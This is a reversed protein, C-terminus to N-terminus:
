KNWVRPAPTKPLPRRSDLEKMVEEIARDLQEDEGNWEKVPDNDILIDPDVGHNEIIWEGTKVDYSTFFPVRLDTGDIFPLSGSIGVIGGWTRTGILKGLGLARFGWPFLDGDSASYKNILCVKPGVQVADPITGIHASGRSMTLRYPERALRELIMPSVNGGGNARDDIILGERDTQPYFYRSFEVLGEVGMDPIYIYGIRGGSARDVKELNKQVWRHHYLPYEDALPLIVQRRAGDPRPESNLSLEVPVGAKGVLLAYLDNVTNAPIGDVAVIFDGEHADVGPETLPSRLSASWSEGPLIREIRFFGSRDRSIEAGLLGTRIREPRDMEGTTIYAHGCNLEAIMEGIVYNLDLRNRVYPLLVAYKAKMAAWDVGHMNDVYFGDRFARWAEGFVQAWERAYDTTIKMNSLDVEEKLDAKGSPINAVYYRGRGRTFLAKKRGTGVSMSAGDAVLDEKQTELDY